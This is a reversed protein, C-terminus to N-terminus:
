SPVNEVDDLDCTLEDLMVAMRNRMRRMM